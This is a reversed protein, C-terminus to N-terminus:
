QIHLIFITPFIYLESELANKGKYLEQLDNRVNQIAEIGYVVTNMWANIM